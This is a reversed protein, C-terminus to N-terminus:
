VTAQGGQTETTAEKDEDDHLGACQAWFGRLFANNEVPFKAADPVTCEQILRGQKAQARGNDYAGTVNGPKDVDNTDRYHPSDMTARWNKYAMSKADWTKFQVLEIYRMDNPGVSNSETADNGSVTVVPTGVHPTITIGLGRPGASATIKIGLQGNQDGIWIENRDNPFLILRTGKGFYSTPDNMLDMFKQRRELEKRNAM